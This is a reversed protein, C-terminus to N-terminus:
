NFIFGGDVTILQGSIFGAEPGLLFAVIGASDGPEQDRPIVRNSRYLEHREQPILKASETNSLGPAVANVTISYPGLERAMARTLAIVAGKSAIYHALRLSGYLAADSAMNIIRGYGLQMMAPAFARSVLWLGRTNVAMIRDWDEVEIEHFLKGGVGDALAANNVLAHVPGQSLIEAAGRQVSEPDAVDMQVFRADPSGGGLRSVADIGRSHDIDVVYIRAGAVALREAIAFGLGRGAGTIVVTLEGVPLGGMPSLGFKPMGPYKLVLIRITLPNKLRYGRCRDGAVDTMGLGPGNPCGGRSGRGRVGPVHRRRLCPGLGFM